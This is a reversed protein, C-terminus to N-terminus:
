RHEIERLLMFAEAMEVGVTAGRWRALHEIAGVSRPHPWPRMEQRYVELGALKRPWFTAIDVFVAPQFPPLSGPPTWETSSPTEFSLLRRVPHGPQPRCAAVAAEHLRRHDINVDGAHHVYVTDPRVEHIASEVAKVLDLLDV